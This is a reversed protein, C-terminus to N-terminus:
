RVLRESMTLGGLNPTVSIVSGGWGVLLDGYLVDPFIISDHTFFIIYCLSACIKKICTGECFPTHVDEYLLTVQLPGM